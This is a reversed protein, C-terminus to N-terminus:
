NKIAGYWDKGNKATDVLISNATLDFGGGFVLSNKLDIQYPGFNQVIAKNHFGAEIVKLQSKVKNFHEDLPALSIDFLNYNLAYTSIPKTWVRRYPENAIDAYKNTFKM